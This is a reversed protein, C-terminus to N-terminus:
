KSGHSLMLILPQPVVVRVNSFRSKHKKQFFLLNLDALKQDPDM